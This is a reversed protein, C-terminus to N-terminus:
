FLLPRQHWGLGVSILHVLINTGCTPGVCAASNSTQYQVQYGLTLGVTEGLPKTLSLGGFWYDYLQNSAVFSGPIGQTRSYGGTFGSSFTRSMQRTVAGTVADTQGGLLVGSGGTVGHNYALNLGYRHQQYHVSTALSWLTETQTINGGVSTGTGAGPLGTASFSSLVAEPGAAIQFSLKGNVVRGFSAQLTHDSFSEGIKAYRFDGFTYSIAFSNRASLQYNYGARANITGYNFLDSNFYHLLSYGGSFSLSSRRSLLEDLEVATSNNLTQGWGTLASQGPNFASGNTSTGNGPLQVGLGGFGLSSQPLYSAQDFVSVITRRFSVKDAFSLAQTVGSGLSNNGNSYMGGGTYSLMLNSIGATRHIDVGATGSIWTTWDTGHGSEQANSDATGFVDAHPQWYSRTPETGLSLNQVGSLAQYQAGSQDSNDDTASDGNDVAGILPSHYAPIPPASGNQDQAHVASAALSIGCILGFFIYISIRM